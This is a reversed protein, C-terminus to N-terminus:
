RPQAQQQGPRQPQQPRLLVHLVRSPTAAVIWADFGPLSVQEGEAPIRGLSEGIWGGLTDAEPEGAPLGFRDRLEEVRLRGDASWRGDALATLQRRRPDHEDEIAGVLEELLDEQTVIGATGGWEDLVVALKAGSRGFDALVDRASRSAPVVLTPRLIAELTQPRSFLDRAAVYGVVRDLDSAHVPYNSLGHQVVLDELDAVSANKPLSVVDTRPTMLEAVRKERFRMAREIMRSERPRLLGEHGAQLWVAGLHARLQLVGRAAGGPPPLLRFLWVLPAVAPMLLLHLARGPIALLPFLRHAWDRFLVKPLTEGVLLVVITILPLYLWEPLGLGDCYLTAVSTYAINALNTGVLLAILLADPRRHYRETWRAGARGRKKWLLVHVPSLSTFAIESGSFLASALLAAGLEVLEGSM